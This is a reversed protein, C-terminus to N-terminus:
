QFDGFLLRRGFGNHNRPTREAALSEGGGRMGILWLRVPSM